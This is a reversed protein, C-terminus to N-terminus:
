PKKSKEVNRLIIAHEVNATPVLGLGRGRQPTQHRRTLMAPLGRSPRRACRVRAPTTHIVPMERPSAAPPPRHRCGKLAPPPRYGRHVPRPRPRCALTDGEVVVMAGGEPASLRAGPSPPAPLCGAARILASALDVVPDACLCVFVCVRLTPRTALM